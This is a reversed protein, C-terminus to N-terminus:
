GPGVELDALLAALRDPDAALLLEEDDIREALATITPRDLFDRLAVQVGLAARIRLLLRTALLSHGGVAFFDDEVGSERIGIVEEWIEALRRETPTRPAVRPAAGRGDADLTSLARRDLKGNRTQPLAAVPEIRDPLHSAPLLRALARRIEHPTAASAEDLVVFAWLSALGDVDQRPVAAAARVGPHALLASEVESLEIRQGRIKVQQDRRGLFELAGDPLLRGLDGTRYVLDDADGSFRNPVFREATQRPEQYYGLSRYPTRLHIEGVTGPACPRGAADVLLAAAGPIPRGIPISPRELDAPRVEHFLKTMTTESPGYLNVIRIREGFAGFWRRLDAALPPEGALLVARLHEFRRPHLDGSALLHFLSPVCHVVEIASRELWEAFAHPDLRLEATEPLVLTGGRCLPVFVDRLYADFYPSTLQSVRTGPGLGLFDTEWRIFHGVGKYRGAIRKPAGTSGSTPVLYCLDDPGLPEHSGLSLIGAVTERPEAVATRLDADLHCRRIGGTGPLPSPIGAAAADEIWWRPEIATLSGELVAEPLDPDLPAFVCGAKFVGLLAVVREVPDAVAVAVVARPPGGALTSALADSWGDLEAYSLRRPGHELAIRTPDEAVSHAFGELVDCDRM